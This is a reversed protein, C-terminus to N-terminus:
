RRGVLNHNGLNRGVKVNQKFFTKKKYHFPVFVLFLPYLVRNSSSTCATTERKGEGCAGTCDTCVATSAVNNTVIYWHDKCSQCRVPTTDYNSQVGDIAKGNPCAFFQRRRNCRAGAANCNRKHGLNRNKKNILRLNKGPFLKLKLNKETWRLKQLTKKKWISVIKARRRSMLLKEALQEPVNTHLRFVEYTVCSRRKTVTWVLYYGDDCTGCHNTQTRLAQTILRGHSCSGEYAVCTTGSISIHYGGNCSSCTNDKNTAFFCTNGTAAAGNFCSCTPLVCVRNSTPTCTSSEREGKSWNCIRCNACGPEHGNSSYKGSDCKPPEVGATRRQAACSCIQLLLFLFSFKRVSSTSPNM